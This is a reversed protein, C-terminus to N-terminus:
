AVAKGTLREIERQLWKTFDSRGLTLFRRYVKQLTALEVEQAAEKKKRELGELRTPIPVVEGAKRRRYREGEERRGELCKECTDCGEVDRARGCRICKGAKRWQKRQETIREREFENRLKRKAGNPDKARLYYVGGGSKKPGMVALVQLIAGHEDTDIRFWPLPARQIM